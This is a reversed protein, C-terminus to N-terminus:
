NNTYHKEDITHVNTCNTFAILVLFDKLSKWIRRKKNDPIPMESIEIENSFARISFHWFNCKTPTHIVNFLISQNQIQPLELNLIEMIKFFFCGRDNDLLFDRDIMPTESVEEGVNWLNLFMDNTIKICIDDLKFLGLLNTSLDKLHNSQIQLKDPDITTTGILFLDKSSTHRVLTCSNLEDTQLQIIKYNSKPLLHEPYIM